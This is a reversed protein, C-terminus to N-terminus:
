AAVGDGSLPSRVEVGVDIAEELALLLLQIADATLRTPILRMLSPVGREFFSPEGLIDLPRM